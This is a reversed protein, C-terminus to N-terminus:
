RPDKPRLTLIRTASIALIIPDRRLPAQSLTPGPSAAPRQTTDSHNSHHIGPSRILAGTLPWAPTGLREERAEPCTWSILGLHDLYALEGRAAGAIAEPDFGTAWAEFGEKREDVIAHGAPLWLRAEERERLLVSDEPVQALGALERYRERAALVQWTLGEDLGSWASAYRVADEFDYLPGELPPDGRCSGPLWQAFPQESAKREAEGPEAGPGEYRNLWAELSRRFSAPACVEEDLQELVVCRGGGTLSRVAWVEFCADAPLALQPGRRWGRHVYVAFRVPWATPRGVRLAPIGFHKVVRGPIFLSLERETLGAGRWAWGRFPREGYPADVPCPNNRREPM